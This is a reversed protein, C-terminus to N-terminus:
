RAESNTCNTGSPTKMLQMATEKDMETLPPGEYYAYANATVIEQAAKTFQYILDAYKGQALLVTGDEYEVYYNIVKGHNASQTRTRRPELKAKVQEKASKTPPKKAAKNLLAQLKTSKETSM